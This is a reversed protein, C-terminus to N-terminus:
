ILNFLNSLTSVCLKEFFSNRCYRRVNLIVNKSQVRLADHILVISKWYIISEHFNVFGTCRVSRPIQRPVELSSPPVVLHLRPLRFETRRKKTPRNTRQRSTAPTKERWLSFVINFLFCEIIVNFIHSIINVHSISCKCLQTRCRTICSM